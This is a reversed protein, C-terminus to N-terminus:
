QNKLTSILTQMILKGQKQDQISKARTLLGYFTSHFLETLTKSEISLTLDGDMQAEKVCPEIAEIFSNFEISAAIGVTPNNSGLESMINNVMCGMFNNKPQADFMSDYLDKLRNIALPKTNEKSLQSKLREVTIEGYVRLGRLLFNEKSKFANYFAGKTMGTSKCIEDVGLSNYGKTCILKLGSKLVINHDHKKNV